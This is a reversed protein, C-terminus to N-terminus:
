PQQRRENEPLSIWYDWDVEFTSKDSPDMLIVSYGDKKARVNHVHVRNLRNSDITPAAPSSGVVLGNHAAPEVMSSHAWYRIRDSARNM